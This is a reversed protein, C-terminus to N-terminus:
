LMACLAPPAQTGLPHQALYRELTTREPRSLNKAIVQPEEVSAIQRLM